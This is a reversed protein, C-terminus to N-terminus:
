LTETTIRILVVVVTNAGSLIRTAFDMIVDKITGIDNLFNNRIVVVTRLVGILIEIVEIAGNTTDLM